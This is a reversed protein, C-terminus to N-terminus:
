SALAGVVDGRGGGNPCADYRVEDHGRDHRLRDPRPGLMTLLSAEADTAETARGTTASDDPTSERITM